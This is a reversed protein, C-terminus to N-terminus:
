VPHLGMEANRSKIVGTSDPFFSFFTDDSELTSSFPPPSPTPPTTPLGSSYLNTTRKKEAIRELLRSRLISKADAKSSEVPFLLGSGTEVTEEEDHLNENIMGDYYEFSYGEPDFSVDYMPPCTTEPRQYEDLTVSLRVTDLGEGNDFPSPFYNLKQMMQNTEDLFDCFREFNSSFEDGDRDHNEAFHTMWEEAITVSLDIKELIVSYSPHCMM